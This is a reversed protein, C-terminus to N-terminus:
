NGSLSLHAITDGDPGVYSTLTLTQSERVYHRVHADPLGLGLGRARAIVASTPDHQWGRAIMARDYFGLTKQVSQPGIFIHDVHAEKPDLDEFRQLRTCGTCAPIRADVRQGEVASGPKMKRYDFSEDSWSAAVTTWRDGPELFIEVNRYARFQKQLQGNALDAGLQALERDDGARNETVGGGM